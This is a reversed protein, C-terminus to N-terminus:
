VIYPIFSNFSSNFGYVVPYTINYIKSCQYIM